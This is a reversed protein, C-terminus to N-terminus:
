RRFLVNGRDITHSWLQSFLSTDKNFNITNQIRDNATEAAYAIINNSASFSSILTQFVTVVLLLWM